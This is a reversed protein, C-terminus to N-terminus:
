LQWLGSQIEGQFIIAFKGDSGPISTAGMAITAGAKEATAVAAEIDETLFYPRVVQGEADHMPARIGLMSGDPMDTTRANGLVEVPEGFTVGHIQSYLDCTAQMDKTVIELYQVQM